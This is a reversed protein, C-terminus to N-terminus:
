IKLTWVTTLKFAFNDIQETFAYNGYRYYTGIGVGFLSKFNYLNRIALGSEFYGKEMTNYAYNIHQEPNQLEGYGINTVLLFEPISRKRHIIIKGIKHTYYLAVFRDSLFENMRMTQFSNVAELPLRTEFSGNGNYLNTYPIDGIVYGAKVVFNPEGFGRIVFGKQLKFDVKHYDFQGDLIGSLGRTYNLWFVPYSTGLSVKNGLVEIYKERFSYKLRVRAESFTFDTLTTQPDATNPLFEYTSTVSKTNRSFGVEADLYKLFYFTFNGEFNTVRDM